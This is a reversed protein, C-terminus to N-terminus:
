ACTGCGSASRTQSCSRGWACLRELARARKRANRCARRGPDECEVVLREARLPGAPSRALEDPDLGADDFRRRYFPVARHVRSLTAQLRELQLQELEERTRPVEGGHQELLIKCAGILNKAKTRYLGIRKIYRELGKRGLELMAEPHNAARFLAPTALNVSKDTAQASLVVSVLLEFPSAYVLESRPAPNAARLLSFLSRVRDPTM